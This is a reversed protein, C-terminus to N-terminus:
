RAATLDYSITTLDWDMTRATTGASKRLAWGAGTLRTAGGPVNTTIRGVEAGNIYFRCKDDNEVVIELDYVNTAPWTLAAVSSSVGTFSDETDTGDLDYGTRTGNEASIIKWRDGTVDSDGTGPTSQTAGRDYLFACGDTFDIATADFFGITASFEEVGTSLTPFGGVWRFRTTTHNNFDFAAYSTSSVISSSSSTSTSFQQCGPVGACGHDVAVAGGSSAIYYSAGAVASAVLLRQQWEDTFEFHTGDYANIGAPGNSFTTAGTVTLSGPLTVASSM